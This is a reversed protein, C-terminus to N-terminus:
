INNVYKRGAQYLLPLIKHRQPAQGSPTQKTSRNNGLNGLTAWYGLSPDWQHGPQEQLASGDRRETNIIM